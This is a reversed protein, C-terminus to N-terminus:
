LFLCYYGDNPDSFHFIHRHPERTLPQPHASNELVYSHLEPTKSIQLKLTALRGM